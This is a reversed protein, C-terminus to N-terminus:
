DFLIEQIIEEPGKDRDLIVTHVRINYARFEDAATLSLRALAEMTAQHVFSPTDAINSILNLIAGGGQEKMVRGVSQMVLFAGTLNVDVTRRWEWEDLTLISAKPNVNAHNILIDIKGWDQIVENIMAQVPMKKSIDAFYSKAQGGKSRISNVVEDVNIPTIDNAAIIGGNAALTGALKQGWGRGAGTILIVKNTLDDMM